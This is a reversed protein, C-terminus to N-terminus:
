KEMTIAPRRCQDGSFGQVLQTSKLQLVEQGDQQHTTGTVTGDAYLGDTKFDPYIERGDIVVRPYGFAQFAQGTTGESRGLRLPHAERPSDGTLRLLALDNYKDLKFIAASGAAGDSHGGSGRSTPGRARM